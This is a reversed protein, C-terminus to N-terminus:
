FVVMCENVMSIAQYNKNNQQVALDQMQKVQMLWKYSTNWYSNGTSETVYYRSINNEEGPFDIAIQM